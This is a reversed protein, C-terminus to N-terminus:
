RSLLATLSEGVIRRAQLVSRRQSRRLHDWAAYSSLADLGALVMTREPRELASLEPEFLQELQSRLIRDLRRRGEDLVPTVGTREMARRIPAIHEYLEARRTALAEVRTRLDGHAEIPRLFPRLRESQVAVVDARLAELDSFHQYITRVSVGARAAVQNARPREVGETVLDLFAEVIATRTRLGRAVRGDVTDSM